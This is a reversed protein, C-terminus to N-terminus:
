VFIYIYLKTRDEEIVYKGIIEIIFHHKNFNDGTALYGKKM